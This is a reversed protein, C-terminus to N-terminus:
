FNNKFKKIESFTDPNEIEKIQQYLAKEQRSLRDPVVVRIRVLQDGKGFRNINPMGLNKLRLISGTQTGPPIRMEVKGTLTPVEIEDGLIAQTSTVPVECFIDSDRREFFPDKEIFITIYLDGRIGGSIGADGQEKLRLSSGHEIGAPVNVAIRHMNTRVRGTGRCNSCPDSIVTGEGRCRPCTQAVTFFGQNRVVQGRGKCVPCTERGKKGSRSGTGKCVPCEDYRSINIHKEVGKAAERLSVYMRYELDSGRTQRSRTATGRGYGSRDFVDSFFDGFIDGFIDSFDMQVRSFDQTWDFGQPGFGAHGYQDYIKRKEPDSLVEYAETIEKFKEEAEKNDPNRDPHYKLALGRYAKKIADISSDKGVGLVEYYDRKEDM